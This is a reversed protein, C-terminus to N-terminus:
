SHASHARRATDREEFKFIQEVTKKLKDFGFPKYLIAAAARAFRAVEPTNMGTMLVVPTHRSEHKIGAMLKLGNMVPMQLDTVVLDFPRRQFLDLAAQGNEAAAVDCGIGSFFLSLLETTMSLWFAHPPDTM